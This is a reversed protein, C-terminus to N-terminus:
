SYAWDCTPVRGSIVKSTAKVYFSLLCVDLLGVNFVIQAPGVIFRMVVKGLSYLLSSRM